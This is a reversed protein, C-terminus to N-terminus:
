LPSPFNLLLPKVILFLYFKLSSFNSTKNQTFLWAVCQLKRTITNIKRKTVEKDMLFSILVQCLAERSKCASISHWPSEMSRLPSIPATPRMIIDSAGDPSLSIHKSKFPIKCTSNELFLKEQAEPKLFLLPFGLNM